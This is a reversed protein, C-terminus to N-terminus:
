RGEGAGVPPAETPILAEVLEPTWREGSALRQRLDAFDIERNGRPGEHFARFGAAAESLMNLGLWSRNSEKNRDWLALKHKRVSEITKRTCGPFTDLLKGILRQVAEDLPTL